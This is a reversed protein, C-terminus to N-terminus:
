CVKLQDDKYLRLLLDGSAASTLGNPVRDIHEDINHAEEDCVVDAVDSYVTIPSHNANFDM